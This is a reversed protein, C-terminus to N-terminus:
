ASIASLCHSHGAYRSEVYDDDAGSEGAQARRAPEGAMARAYQHELGARPEAAARCGEGIALGALEDVVSLVHHEGAVQIREREEPLDTGAVVHANLRLQAHRHDIPLATSRPEHARRRQRRRQVQM